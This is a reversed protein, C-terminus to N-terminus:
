KYYQGHICVCRKEFRSVHARTVQRHQQDLIRPHQGLPQALRQQAHGPHLQRAGHVALGVRNRRQLAVRDVHQQEIQVQALARAEAHQAGNGLLGALFVTTM